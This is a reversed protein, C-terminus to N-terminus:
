RARKELRALLLHYYLMGRQLGLATVAREIGPPVSGTVFALNRAVSTDNMPVVDLRRVRSCTADRSPIRVRRAIAPPGRSTLAGIRLPTRRADYSFACIGLGESPDSEAASMLQAVWAEEPEDLSLGDHLDLLSQGRSGRIVARISAPLKATSVELLHISFEFKPSDVAESCTVGRPSSRIQSAAGVTRM